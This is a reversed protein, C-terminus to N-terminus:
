AVRADADRSDEKLLEFVPRFFGYEGLPIRKRVTFHPFGRFAKEVGAIGLAKGDADDILVWEMKLQQACYEGFAAGAIQVVAENTYPTKEGSKLWGEFAADLDSLTWPGDRYESYRVMFAGVLAANERVAAIEEASVSRITEPYPAITAVFAKGQGPLKLRGRSLVTKGELGRELREKASRETATHALGVRELITRVLAILM